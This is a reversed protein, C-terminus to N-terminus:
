VGRRQFLTYFEGRVEPDNARGRIVASSTTVGSKRPGRCTMCEHSASTVFILALPDLKEWVYDAVQRTMREQLQLQSAFHDLVWAVKSLGMVRKRPIYGFDATGSFPLLHHACMSSFPIRCETVMGEEGEETPFSKFKRELRELAGPEWGRLLETRWM